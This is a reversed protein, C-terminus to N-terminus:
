RDSHLGLRRALDAPNGAIRALAGIPSSDVITHINHEAAAQYAAVFAERLERTINYEHAKAIWNPTLRIDLVLGAANITVATRRSASHGTYPKDAQANVHSALQDISEDLTQLMGLVERMAGVVAEPTAADSVTEATAGAALPDSALGPQAHEPASLRETLAIDIAAVRALTAAEFAALIAGPLDTSSLRRRWRPDLRVDCVQGQGDITITVHGTPDAAVFRTDPAQAQSIQRSLTSADGYLRRLDDPDPEDTTM